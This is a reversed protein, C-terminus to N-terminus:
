SFQIARGVPVAFCQVEPAADAPKGLCEAAM